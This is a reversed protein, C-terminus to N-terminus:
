NGKYLCVERILMRIRNGIIHKYLPKVTVLCEINAYDYSDNDKLLAHTVAKDSLKRVIDTAQAQEIPHGAETMFIDSEKVADTGKVKVILAKFEKTLDTIKDRADDEEGKDEAVYQDFRRNIQKDFTAKYRARAKDRKKQM